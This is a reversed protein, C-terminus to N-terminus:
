ASSWIWASALSFFIVSGLLVCRTRGVHRPYLLVPSLVPFLLPRENEDSFQAVRRFFDPLRQGVRRM